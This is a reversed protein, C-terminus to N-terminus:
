QFKPLFKMSDTAYLHMKCGEDPKDRPNMKQHYSHVINEEPKMRLFSM